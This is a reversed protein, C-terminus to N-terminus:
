AATKAFVCLEGRIVTVDNIKIRDPDINVLQESGRGEEQDKTWEAVAPFQKASWDNHMTLGEVNEFTRTSHLSSDSNLYIKITM